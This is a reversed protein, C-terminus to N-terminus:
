EEVDIWRALLRAAAAPDSEIMDGVQGLVQRGQLAEDGMEIGALAADASEAEGIVDNQTDLTPPLGVLEEASPVEGRRSAKRVMAIMMTMAAVALLGLVAKDVLGNMGGLSSAM